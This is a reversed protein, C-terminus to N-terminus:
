ASFLEYLTGKQNGLLFTMSILYGIGLTKKPNETKEPKQSFHV